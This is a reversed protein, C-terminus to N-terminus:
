PARGLLIGRLNSALRNFTGSNTFVLDYARIDWLAANACRMRVLIRITMGRRAATTLGGQTARAYSTFATVAPRGECNGPCDIVDYKAHNLARVTIATARWDNTGTVSQVAGLQQFEGRCGVGKGVCTVTVSVKFALYNSVYPEGFSASVNTCRCTRPPPPDNKDKVGNGNLDSNKTDIQGNGDYVATMSTVDVLVRKGNRICFLRFTFKFSKGAREKPLLDKASTGRVVFAGTSEGIGAPGCTGNCAVRAPNPEEVKLDTGVPSRVDIEGQCAGRAGECYMTWSLHFSYGAVSRIGGSIDLRGSTSTELLTCTCATRRFVAIVQKDANMTVACTKVLGQCDGEWHDFEWGSDATARLGVNTGLPYKATCNPPCDVVAEPESTVKGNGKTAVTLTATETGCTGAYTIDAVPTYPPVGTSNVWFQLSAGCALTGNVPTTVIVGNGPPVSVHCELERNSAVFQGVSCGGGGSTFAAGEPLGFVIYQWTTAGQPNRVTIALTNGSRTYTGSGADGALGAPHSQATSAAVNGAAACLALAM